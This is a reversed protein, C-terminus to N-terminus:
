RPLFQVRVPTSNYLARGWVRGNIVYAVSRGYYWLSLDYGDVTSEAGVGIQLGQMSAREIVAPAGHRALLEEAPMGMDIRDFDERTLGAAGVPLEEARPVFREGGPRQAVVKDVPHCHIPIGPHQDWKVYRDHRVLQWDDYCAALENQQLSHKFGAAIFEPPAPYEETFLMCTFANFGGPATHEKMDSVLRRWDAPQLYDIVGHAMILDWTGDIRYAGIDAVDSEIPVRANKAIAALKTIAASSIDVATVACGARALFFANRGEGCGLDLVRAGDPLATLLEAIDHNPGGMTSVSSDSYGKEWFAKAKAKM